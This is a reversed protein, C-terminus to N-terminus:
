FADTGSGNAARVDLGTVLVTDRRGDALGAPSDTLRAHATM